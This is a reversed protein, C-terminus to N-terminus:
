AKQIDFKKLEENKKQTVQAPIQFQYVKDLIVLALPRQLTLYRKDMLIPMNNKTPNFFEVSADLIDELMIRSAIIRANGSIAINQEAGIVSNQIYLDGSLTVYKLASDLIDVSSNSSIKVGKLISNYTKVEGELYSQNKIHTNALVKVGSGIWCNQEMRANLSIYGGKEGKKVGNYDETAEIRYLKDEYNQLKVILYDDDLIKYM